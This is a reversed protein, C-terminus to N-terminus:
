PSRAHRARAYGRFAEVSGGNLLPVCEITEEHSWDWWAIRLLEAIVGEAFRRRVPRAPSGAVITYPEVDRAVVSRYHTVKFRKGV